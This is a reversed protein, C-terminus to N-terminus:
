MVYRALREKIYNWVDNFELNDVCKIKKLFIKWLQNMKERNGFDADYLMSDQGVVTNRNRFTRQISEALNNEDVTHNTLIKYIDFYDKMRTNGDALDVICQFKEAVVTELPYAILSSSPINELINPFMLSQPAPFISDGFGFDMAVLQRASDLHALLHIRIGHYERFETITEATVSEADFVVGDDICEIRCIESVAGQISQLGNSIKDASFDMDLTPRALFKEYAFLLTGGKLCFVSKYQSAALRYLFREHFYRTLIVQYEVGLKKSTNLLKERVSAAVNKM